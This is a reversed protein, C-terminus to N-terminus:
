YIADHIVGQEVQTWGVCCRSASESSDCGASNDLLSTAVILGWIEYDVPKPPQSRKAKARPTEEVNCLVPFSEDTDIDWM